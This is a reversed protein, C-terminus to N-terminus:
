ASLKSEDVVLKLVQGPQIYQSPTLSNWELLEAVTVNFKSAIRALSDGSKVKYSVTRIQEAAVPAQSAIITLQQGAHLKSDKSLHNWATLQKVSVKHHRAIEWLTDGSQVKYTLQPGETVARTKKPLKQSTSIAYLQKDDASVPIILHRGAVITNNKMGNAARIAAITTHHNKAIVGISDGPKITYRLWSVRAESETEALAKKFEESKDIPLVLTHPGLPSTAWRNYGPNLKQLELTTMNALGAAMALDIQSDIDVVEISPSNEIPALSIGYEDAHKIVEALALLQPVYRETEKPLNLSWFDTELGKEENRKIANLVRSEGSNYAAFAYLWNNNTKQYLYELMDLAAVTSAPVDRRGDYWWNMELGFHNAMPTTFQWLGSAASASSASPDFASEIIPLLAIEIPLHRKELEEVIMYMYPAARESIIELHKPNKIYWDRYQNVLKQDPIPLQMGQRIREWVDTIQASEAPSALYYQPVTNETAVTEAEPKTVEHNDLTQCGTLLAFGGVVVYLSVRM